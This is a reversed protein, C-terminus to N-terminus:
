PLSSLWWALVSPAPVSVQPCLRWRGTSATLANRRPRVYATVDLKWAPLDFQYFPAAVGGLVLPAESLDATCYDCRKAPPCVETRTVDAPDVAAFHPEHGNQVVAPKGTRKSKRGPKADLLNKSPPLSSNDSTRKLLEEMRSPRAELGAIREDRQAVAAELNHVQGELEAKTAM